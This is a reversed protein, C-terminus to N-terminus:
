KKGFTYTIGINIGISSYPVTSSLSKSPDSNLPDLSDVYSIESPAAITGFVPHALPADGLNWVMSPVATAGVVGAPIAPTTITLETYESNDRTVNIGLYEVEAFLNLNDSLRYKYGFTATFGLPIRGHYDAKGESLIPDIGYASLPTYTERNFEAETKGGVKTIAGIKGYVHQNFNYILAATLGYARGHGTGDTYESISEAGADSKNTKYYSINQDSGHLYAFGLEAGFMENFFYGAKIQGNIGEGYSGYHNTAKSQDANLSTGTLIGASGISFGGSASVYFEQASASTAIILAVLLLLHKKM